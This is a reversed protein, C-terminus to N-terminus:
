SQYKQAHGKLMAVCGDVQEESLGHLIVPVDFPLSCLHRVYREYDLKGTGAALHGADGDHDLDKGHAIAIHEGLLDFAEDLIETMRPLEGENFINAADMVVGLHKSGMEDIIRKSKVATNTVNNVEPEFAIVVDHEEAVPLIQELTNRLVAWAEDTKNDPHNQWMSKASRSGTCTAIVSTGMPHATRILAKLQRIAENRADDEPHVMNVEGNLAAIHMDRKAIESRIDDCVSGEVEDPIGRIGASFLSFQLQRIDHGVISDLVESLSDRRFHASMIGVQM